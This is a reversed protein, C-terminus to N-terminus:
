FVASFVIICIRWIGFAAYIVACGVVYPVLSEKLKAKDEASAMMFKIGLIGGIIVTVVVGLPFIINYINDIVEKIDSNKPTGISVRNQETEGQTFEGKSVSDKGIDLFNKAGNIIDSWGFAESVNEIAFISQIILLLILIKVIKSLINTM